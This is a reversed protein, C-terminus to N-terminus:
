ECNLINWMTEYLMFKCLKEITILIISNLDTMRRSTRAKRMKERKNWEKNQFVCFHNNKHNCM